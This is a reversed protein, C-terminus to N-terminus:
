RVAIESKRTWGMVVGDDGDHAVLAWDGLEKGIMVLDGARVEGMVTGVAGPKDFLKLPRRAIGAVARRSRATGGHPDRETREADGPDGQIPGTRRPDPRPGGFLPGPGEEDDEDDGHSFIPHGPVGVPPQPLTLRTGDRLESEERPASVGAARLLAPSASFAVVGVAVTLLLGTLTDTWRSRRRPPPPTRPVARVAPPAAESM